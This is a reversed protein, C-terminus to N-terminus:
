YVQRFWRWHQLLFPKKWARSVGKVERQRVSLRQPSRSLWSAAPRGLNGVSVGGWASTITVNSQGSSGSLTEPVRRKALRWGPKTTTVQHFMAWLSSFPSFLPVATSMAPSSVAQSRRWSASPGETRPEPALPCRPRIDASRRRRLAGSLATRRWLPRRLFCSLGGKTPCESCQSGTPACKPGSFRTLHSCSSGTSQSWILPDSRRRRYEPVLSHPQNQWHSSMLSSKGLSQSAMRVILRRERRTLFVTSQECHVWSVM